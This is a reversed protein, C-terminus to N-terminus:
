RRQFHSQTHSHVSLAKEVDPYIIDTLFSHGKNNLHVGDAKYIESGKTLYMGALSVIHFGRNHVLTSMMVNYIRHTKRQLDAGGGKWKLASRVEPLSLFLANGLGNAKLSTCLRRINRQFEELPVRAKLIESERSARIREALRFLTDSSVFSNVTELFLFPSPKDFPRPKEESDPVPGLWGDNLGIWVIVLDPHRSLVDRDLRENVQISTHGTIGANLVEIDQRGEISRMRNGLLTPWAYKEKIKYGFTLSDGICVVRFHPSNMSSKSFSRRRGYVDMRSPVGLPTIRLFIELGIVLGILILIWKGSRLFIRKLHVREVPNFDVYDNLYM